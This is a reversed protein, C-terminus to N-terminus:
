KGFDKNEREKRRIEEFQEIIKQGEEIIEARSTEMEVATLIQTLIDDFSAGTLRSIATAATCLALHLSGLLIQMKEQDEPNENIVKRRM